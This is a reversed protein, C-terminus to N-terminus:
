YYYGLILRRSEYRLYCVHIRFWVSYLTVVLFMYVLNCFSNSIPKRCVFM